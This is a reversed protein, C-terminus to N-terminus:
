AMALFLMDPHELYKIVEPNQHMRRFIYDDELTYGHIKTPHPKKEALPPRSAAQGLTAPPNLLGAVLAPSALLLHRKRM